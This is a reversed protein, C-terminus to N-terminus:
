AEGSALVFRARGGPLSYRHPSLNKRAQAAIEANVPYLPTLGRESAPWPRSVVQAAKMRYLFCPTM